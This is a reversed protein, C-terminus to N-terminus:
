WNRQLPFTSTSGMLTEWPVRPETSCLKFVLAKICFVHGSSSGFILRGIRRLLQLNIPVRFTKCFHWANYKQRVTEHVTPVEAKKHDSMSNIATEHEAPHQNSYRWSLVSWKSIKRLEEMCNRL